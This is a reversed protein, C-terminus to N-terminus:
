KNKTVRELYDNILIEKVRELPELGSNPNYIMSIWMKYEEDYQRLTDTGDKNHILEYKEGDLIVEELIIEGVM